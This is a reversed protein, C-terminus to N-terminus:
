PVLELISAKEIKQVLITHTYENSDGRNPSERILVCM